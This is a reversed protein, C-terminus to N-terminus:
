KAMLKLITDLFTQPDIPKEIFDTAKVEEARRKDQERVAGSVFVIPVTSDLSRIKECLSTGAGDKLLYDLLYLDFSQSGTAPTLLAQAETVTTAPVVEYGAGKLLFIIFSRTDDHDELYLIRPKDSEM